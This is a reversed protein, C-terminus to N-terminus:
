RQSKSPLGCWLRRVEVGQWIILCPFGAIIERARELLSLAFAVKQTLGFPTGLLM